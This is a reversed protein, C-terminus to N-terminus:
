LNDTQRDTVGEHLNPLQSTNQSAVVRTWQHGSWRRLRHCRRARRRLQGGPARQRSRGAAVPPEARAAVDPDGISGRAPYRHPDGDRADAELHRHQRDHEEVRDEDERLKCHVVGLDLLQEALAAGVDGDHVVGEQLHVQAEQDEERELDDDLEVAEAGGVQAVEEVHDVGGDDEAGEDDGDDGDVDALGVVGPALAAPPSVRSRESGM